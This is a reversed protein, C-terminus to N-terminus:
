SILTKWKCRLLHYFWFWCHFEYKFLFVKCPAVAKSCYVSVLYFSALVTSFYIVLAIYQHRKLLATHWLTWVLEPSPRTIQDVGSGFDHLVLFTNQITYNDDATDTNMVGQPWVCFQAICKAKRVCTHHQTYSKKWQLAFCQSIYHHGIAHVAYWARGWISGIWVCTYVTWLHSSNILLICSELVYLNLFIYDYSCNRFPMTRSADTRIDVTKYCVWEMKCDISNSLCLAARGNKMVSFPIGANANMEAMPLLLTNGMRNELLLRDNVLSLHPLTGINIITYIEYYSHPLIHKFLFVSHRKLQYMTMNARIHLNQSAWNM